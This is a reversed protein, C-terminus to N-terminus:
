EEEIRSTRSIASMLHLWRSDDDGVAGLLIEVNICPRIDGRHVLHCSVVPTKGDIKKLDDVKKGALATNWSYTRPNAEWSYEIPCIQPHKERYGEPLYPSIMEALTNMDGADPLSGDHNSIYGVIAGCIHALNLPCRGIAYAGHWGSTMARGVPYPVICMGYILLAGLFFRVSAGRSCFGARGIFFYMFVSLIAIGVINGIIFLVGVDSWGYGHFPKAGIGFGPPPATNMSAFFIGILLAVVMSGGLLLVFKGVIMRSALNGKRVNWWLWGAQLAVYLFTVWYWGRPPSFPTSVYYQTSHGFCTPSYLLGLFVLFLANRGRLM